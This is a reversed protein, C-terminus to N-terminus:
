NIRYRRVVWDEDVLMSAKPVYGDPRMRVWIEDRTAHLIDQRHEWPASTVGETILVSGQLRGEDDYVEWLDAGDTRYERLLWITGDAGAVIWRVPPFAEPYTLADEAARRNADRVAPSPPMLGDGYLEGSAYRGHWDRIWARDAETLVRRTYAISRRVLTDGAIGVKYLDFTGTAGAERREEVFLVASGDATPIVPLNTQTRWTWFWNRNWCCTTSGNRAWFLSPLPHIPIMAITDVVEGDPSFRRLARREMRYENTSAEGAPVTGPYVSGDALLEAARFSAGASAL